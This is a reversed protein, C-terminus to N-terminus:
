QPSSGIALERELVECIRQAAAGDGFPNAPNAMAEYATRDGLLRSAEAV